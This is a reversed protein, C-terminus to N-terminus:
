PGQQARQQRVWELVDMIAQAQGADIEEARSGSVVGIKFRVKM